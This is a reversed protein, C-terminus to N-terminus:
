PNDSLMGKEVEYFKILKSQIENTERLLAIERDKFELEKRLLESTSDDYPLLESSTLTHTGKKKAGKPKPSRLMEGVGMVLWDSDLEPYTTLIIAISTGNLENDRKNLLSYSLGTKRAFARKSVNLAKIFELVRAKIPSNEM